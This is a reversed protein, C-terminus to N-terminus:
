RATSRVSSAEIIASSNRAPAQPGAAALHDGAAHLARLGERYNPYRLTVGLVSKLKDNRARICGDYFSLALPSLVDDAEAYPIEPPPEIGILAAAFAIQESPPAPEDDVVNFVGDARRAFAADIAQAIDYVHIRNSVHGPKAIRHVTGRMLRVMGNQGPGYIGGLRLIAVPLIGAHRGAGAVRARCRRARQRPPCADSHNGATEDIWAGGSDGYVGLTSLLGRFQAAAGARHRGRPSRPRPRPRRGARGIDAACRGRAIARLSSTRRRRATSYAADRGAPRRLAPPRAGGGTGRQADDRRHPRLARRIRRCLAARLLRARPLRAYRMLDSAALAAAWEDAVAADNEVPVARPQWRPSGSATSGGWRGCRPAACWRRLSRRAAARGRGRASADGSNGIAILVNRVFRDRGTRKVPSKAFLKRFAADDLRALDALRPAQLAARAALKAEHGAQAFKNWPCVALCDDCGYIRNGIAARLERPIPGKHEITLYSICRRADLRYPAPFAATPCIDLCARCSGCHDPEPEDPPLDLTTFIAGLFLWSGFQRSVLNTHKGQWGLGAAAALPKEMVAATDVFVKVDGGAQAVLWRALAKLRPKIVDHYDDSQAYVSIAGRDRRRLIALPDGTAATTSGSCSSPAFRRGCRARARAGRPPRRWGTWTAM